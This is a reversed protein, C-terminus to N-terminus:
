DAIPSNPQMDNGTPVARMSAAQSQQFTRTMIGLYLNAQGLSHLPSISLHNLANDEIAGMPQHKWGVLSPLQLQLVPAHM